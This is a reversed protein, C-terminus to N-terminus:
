GTGCCAILYVYTEIIKDGVLQIVKPLNSIISQKLKRMQLFPIIAGKEFVKSIQTLKSM